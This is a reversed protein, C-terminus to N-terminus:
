CFLVKEFNKELKLQTIAGLSTKPSPHGTPEVAVKNPAQVAQCDRRWVKGAVRLARLYKEIRKQRVRERTPHVLKGRWRRAKGDEGVAIVQRAIAVDQDRKWKIGVWKYRAKM